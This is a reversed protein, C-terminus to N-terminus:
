IRTEFHLSMFVLSILSGHFYRNYPARKPVASRGKLLEEVGVGEFPLDQYLEAQLESCFTVLNLTAFDQEDM